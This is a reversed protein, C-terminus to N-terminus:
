WEQFQYLHTQSTTLFCISKIFCLMKVPIQRPKEKTPPPPSLFYFVENLTALNKKTWVYWFPFFIGFSCLSSWVNMGVNYWIAMLSELNGYFKRVNYLKFARWFIGL